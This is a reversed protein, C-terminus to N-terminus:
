GLKAVFETALVQSILILFTAIGLLTHSQPNSSIAPLLWLFVGGFLFGVLWLLDNLSEQSLTVDAGLGITAMITILSLLVASIGVFPLIKNFAQLRSKAKVLLLHALVTGSIVMPLIAFGNPQSCLVGLTFITLPILSFYIAKDPISRKGPLKGQWISLLVGYGAGLGGVVLIWSAIQSEIGMMLGVCLITWITILEGQFRSRQGPCLEGKKLLLCIIVLACVPMLSLVPFVMNYFNNVVM